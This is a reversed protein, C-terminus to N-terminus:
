LNGLSTGRSLGNSNSTNLGLSQAWLTLEGAVDRKTYARMRCSGHHLLQIELRKDLACRM